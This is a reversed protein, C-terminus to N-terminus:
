DSVVTNRVTRVPGVGPRVTRPRAGPVPDPLRDGLMAREGRGGESRTQPQRGGRDATVEVQEGFSTGDLLVLGSGSTSGAATPRGPCVDQGLGTM